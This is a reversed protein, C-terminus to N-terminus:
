ESLKPIFVIGLVVLAIIMILAAVFKFIQSYTISGFKVLANVV